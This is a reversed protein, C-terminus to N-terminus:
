CFNAKKITEIKDEMFMKEYEAGSLLNFNM